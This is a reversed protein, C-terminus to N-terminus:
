LYPGFVDWIGASCYPVDMFIPTDDGNIYTPEWEFDDM